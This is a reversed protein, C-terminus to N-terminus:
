PLGAAPCLLAAPTAQFKNGLFMSLEYPEVPIQYTSDAHSTRGPLPNNTSVFISFLRASRESTSIHACYVAFLMCCMMLAYAAEVEVIVVEACLLIQLLKRDGTFQSYVSPCMHMFCSTPRSVCLAYSICIVHRTRSGKTRLAFRVFATHGFRTRVRLCVPRVGGPM